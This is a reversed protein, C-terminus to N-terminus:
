ENTAATVVVDNLRLNTDIEFSQATYTNLETITINLKGADTPINFQKDFNQDSYVKEYLVDDAGGHVTVCFKENKINTFQIRFIAMNESTGVYQMTASKLTSDTASSTQANMDPSVAFLICTLIGTGFAKRIASFKSRKTM